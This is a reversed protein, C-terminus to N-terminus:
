RGVAVGAAPRLGRLAFGTWAAGTFEAAAFALIVVPAGTVVVLAAFYAGVVMRIRVSAHFFPTNETRAAHVFITGIVAALGAMIRIWELDNTPMGLLGFLGPAFLLTAAVVYDYLGWVFLTVAPRSM